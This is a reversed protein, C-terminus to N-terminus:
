KRAGEMCVDSRLEWREELTGKYFGIYIDFIYLGGMNEFSKGYDEWIKLVKELNQNFSYVYVVKHCLLVTHINYILIYQYIPYIINSM